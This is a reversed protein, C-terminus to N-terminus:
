NRNLVTLRCHRCRLVHIIRISGFKKANETPAYLWMLHYLTIKVFTMQRLSQQLARYLVSQVAASAREILEAARGIVVVASVQQM